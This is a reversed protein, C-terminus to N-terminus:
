PDPADREVASFWAETVDEFPSGDFTRVSDLIFDSSISQRMLDFMESTTPIKSDLTFSLDTFDFNM